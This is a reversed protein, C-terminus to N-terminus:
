GLRRPAPMGAPSRGTAARPLDGPRRLGPARLGWGQPQDRDPPAGPPQAAQSGRPAASGSSAVWKRRSPPGLALPFPITGEPVQQTSSPERLQQHHTPQEPGQAQLAATGPGKRVVLPLGPHGPLPVSPAAPVRWGQGTHCLFPWTLAPGQQRRRHGKQWAPHSLGENCMCVPLREM